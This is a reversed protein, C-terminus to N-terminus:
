LEEQMGHEEIFNEVAQKDFQARSHRIISGFWQDAQDQRNEVADMREELKDIRNRNRTIESNLNNKLDKNETTLERIKKEKQHERKSPFLQYKITAVVCGIAIGIVLYNYM